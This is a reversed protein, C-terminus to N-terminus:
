SELKHSQKNSWRKAVEVDVTLPVFYSDLDEMIEKVKPIVYAEESRPIELVIEDHITMIVRSKLGEDRLWQWIDVMAKKMQDASTGQCMYNLSKYADDPKIFYRRGFPNEVYGYRILQSKLKNTLERVSPFERHYNAVLVIAERVSTKLGKKTLTEAQTEPGSGYIIGFNVGKTRKRREKTVEPISCKYIRAAVHLHIDEAIAAAMDEDKAFHVFFKMEVQEYDFHFNRRGRRAVICERPGLIRPMNQLNPDSSSFRGTEATTSNFSAHLIGYERGGKIGVDVCDDVLRDYYTSIMKRLERAKLVLAPLLERRDLDYEHSAEDLAELFRQTRWGEEGSDRIIPSVQDHSYRIMSYEDFSWGGGGAMVKAGTKPDRKKKPKTKYKLEYGLKEFAAPMQAPSNPNFEDDVVEQIEVGRRKRTITIPLVLDDLEEKIRALDRRAEERLERAKTIDVRVGRNEMDICVFVLRMETKYLELCTQEVQPYLKYFLMLTSEVDWLCRQEVLDIPADPFGLKHGRKKVQAKTNKSNLWDIIEFKDETSRGLLRKSLDALKHSLWQGNVVKSLVLTCHVQAKSNWIDIGMHELMKLDFKANHFVIRKTPDNFQKKLWPLTSENLMVFDYEGEDTIYGFCFPRDGHYVNLGDSEVDISITKGLLQRRYTKERNRRLARAPRSGRSEQVQESLLPDNHKSPHNASRVNQMTGRNRVDGQEPNNLRRVSSCQRRRTSM